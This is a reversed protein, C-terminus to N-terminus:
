KDDDDGDDSNGNDVPIMVPPENNDNNDDAPTVVPPEATPQAPEDGYDPVDAPTAEYPETTEQTKPAADLPEVFDASGPCYKNLDSVYNPSVILCKAVKITDCFEEGNLDEVGMFIKDQLAEPDTKLQVSAMGEFEGYAHCTINYEHSVEKKFINEILCNNTKVGKFKYDEYGRLDVCTKMAIGTAIKCSLECLFKPGDKLGLCVKDCEDMITMAVDKDLTATTQSMAYTPSIAITNNVTTIIGGPTEEDSPEEGPALDGEPDTVTGDAQPAVEGPAVGEGNPNENNDPLTVDPLKNEDDNNNNNDDDDKDDEKVDKPRKSADSCGSCLLGSGLFATLVFIILIIRRM